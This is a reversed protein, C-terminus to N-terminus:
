DPLDAPDVLLPDCDDEDNETEPEPKVKQDGGIVVPPFVLPLVGRPGQFSFAAMGVVMVPRTRKKALPLRHMPM